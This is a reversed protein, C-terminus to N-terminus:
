IKGRGECLPFSAAESGAVEAWGGTKADNKLAAAALRHRYFLPLGFPLKNQRCINVLEADKNPARSNFAIKRRKPM